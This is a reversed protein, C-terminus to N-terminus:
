GGASSFPGPPSSMSIDETVLSHSGLAVEDDASAVVTEALRGVADAVVTGWIGASMKFFTSM